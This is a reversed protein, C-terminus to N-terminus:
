INIRVTGQDKVAGLVKPSAGSSLEETKYGEEWLLKQIVSTEVASQLRDDTM